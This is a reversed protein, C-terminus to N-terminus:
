AGRRPVLRTVLWVVVVLLIWGLATYLGVMLADDALVEHARVFTGVWFFVLAGCFAWAFWPSVNLDADVARTLQLLLALLFFVAYGLVPGVLLLYFPAKGGVVTWVARALAILAFYV